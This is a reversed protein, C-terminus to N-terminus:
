YVHRRHRYPGPREAYAYYPNLMCAASRGSASLNCQPLSTFSCDYYNLPGWVEMCVPYGPAYTQASAPAATALTAIVPIALALIRMQFEKRSQHTSGAVPLVIHVKPM